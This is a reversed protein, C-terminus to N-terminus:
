LKSMVSDPIHGSPGSPDVRAAEIEKQQASAQAAVAPVEEVVAAAEQIEDEANYFKEGSGLEGQLAAEDVLAEWDFDDHVEEEEHVEENEAPAAVEDDRRRENDFEIDVGRVSSKAVAKKKHHVMSLRAYFEKVANIHVLERRKFLKEWKQRKIMDMVNSLGNDNMWSERFM